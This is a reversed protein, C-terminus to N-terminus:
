LYAGVEARAGCALSLSQFFFLSPFSSLGVKSLSMRAPEGRDKPFSAFPSVPNLSSYIVINSLLQDEGKGSGSVESTAKENLSLMAKSFFPRQRGEKQFLMYTRIVLLLISLLPHSLALMKCWFKKKMGAVIAFRKEGGDRARSYRVKM